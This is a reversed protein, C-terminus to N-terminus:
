SLDNKGLKLQQYWNIFFFSEFFYYTSNRQIM